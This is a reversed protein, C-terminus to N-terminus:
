EASQVSQSRYLLCLARVAVPWALGAGAWAAAWFTLRTPDCGAWHEAGCALCTIWYHGRHEIGVFSCLNSYTPNIVGRINITNM